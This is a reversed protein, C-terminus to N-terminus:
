QEARVIKIDNTIRMKTNSGTKAGKSENQANSSDVKKVNKERMRWSPAKKRINLLKSQKKKKM